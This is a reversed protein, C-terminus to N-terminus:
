DYIICNVFLERLTDLADGSMAQSWTWWSGVISAPGMSVPTPYPPVKPPDPMLEVESLAMARRSDFLTGYIGKGIIGSQKDGVTWSIFDGTEDM